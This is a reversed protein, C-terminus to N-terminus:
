DFQSVRLYPMTINGLLSGVPINQLEPVIRRPRDVLTRGNYKDAAMNVITAGTARLVQNGPGQRGRNLILLKSWDGNEDAFPTAIGVPTGQQAQLGKFPAWTIAGSLVPAALQAPWALVM